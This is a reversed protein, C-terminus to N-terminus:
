STSATFEASQSGGITSIPIKTMRSNGSPRNGEGRHRGTAHSPTATPTTPVRAMEKAGPESSSTGTGVSVFGSPMSDAWVKNPTSRTTVSGNSGSHM